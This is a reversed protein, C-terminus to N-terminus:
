TLPLEGPLMSCAGLLPWPVLGYLLSPCQVREGVGGRKDPLMHAACARRSLGAVSVAHVKALLCFEKATRHLSIMSALMIIWMTGATARM